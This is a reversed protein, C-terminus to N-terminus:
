SAHRLQAEPATTPDAREDERWAELDAEVPVVVKRRRTMLMQALLAVVGAGAAIWLNTLPSQPAASTLPLATTTVTPAQAPIPLPTDTSLLADLEARQSAATIQLRHLDAAATPNSAPPAPTGAATAPPTASLDAITAAEARADSELATAVDAAAADIQENLATRRALLALMTPHTPRLLASQKAIEDNVAGLAGLLQGVAASERVGALATVPRNSALADRIAKAQRAALDHRETAAQVALSPATDQSSPEPMPTSATLTEIQMRDIQAETEALSTRLSDIRPRLSVATTTAPAPQTVVSHLTITPAVTNPRIVSLLGYAAISALVGVFLAFSLRTTTRMGVRERVIRVM